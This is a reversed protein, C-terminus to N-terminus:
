SNFLTHDDIPVHYCYGDNMGNPDIKILCGQITGSFLDFGPASGPVGCIERSQTDIIRECDGAINTTLSFDEFMIRPKTYAKKM